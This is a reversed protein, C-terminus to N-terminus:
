RRATLVRDLEQEQAQKWADETGIPFWFTSRVVHFPECAALQSVYDTIEYEGRPSLRIELELVSRPFVYAGTNALQEAHIRSVLGCARGANLIRRSQAITFAGRDCYVDCFEALGAMAVAPIWRPLGAKTPPAPPLEPGPLERVDKLIGQWEAVEWDASPADRFRLRLDPLPVIGPKVQELEVVETWSM